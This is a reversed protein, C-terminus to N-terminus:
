FTRLWFIYFISLNNNPYIYKYVLIYGGEAVAQYGAELFDVLETGL